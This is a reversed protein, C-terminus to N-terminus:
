KSRIRSWRDRGMSPMGLRLLKEIDAYLEEREEKRKLIKELRSYKGVLLEEHLRKSTSTSVDLSKQIQYYSHGNSLLILTALRKALMLLETETLLELLLKSGNHVDLMGVFQKEIRKRIASEFQGESVQTMSEIYRHMPINGHAYIHIHEYPFVVTTDYAHM